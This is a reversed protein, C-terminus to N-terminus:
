NKWLKNNLRILSLKIKEEILFYSIINSSQYIISLNIKKNKKELESILYSKHNRFAEKICRKIKNRNVAKVINRKPVVIQTKIFSDRSKDVEMYVLRFPDEFISKGNSFLNETSKLDCLRESKKFTNM